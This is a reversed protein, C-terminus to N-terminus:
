QVKGNLDLKLLPGTRTRNLNPMPESAFVPLVLDCPRKEGDTSSKPCKLEPPRGVGVGTSGYSDLVLDLLQGWDEM